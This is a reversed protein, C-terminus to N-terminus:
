NEDFYDSCNKTIKMQKIESALKHEKVQFKNMDKLEDTACTWLCGKKKVQEERKPDAAM